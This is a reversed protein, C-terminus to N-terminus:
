LSLFTNTTVTLVKTLASAAPRPNKGTEFAWTGALLATPTAALDQM